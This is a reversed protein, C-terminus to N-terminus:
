DVTDRCVFKEWQPEPPQARQEVQRVQALPTGNQCWTLMRAVGHVPGQVMAEVSGNRRNRVWGQLQLESANAQMASRYGVGQVQGRIDLHVAITGTAPKDPQPPRM